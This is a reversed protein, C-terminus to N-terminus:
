VLGADHVCIAIQVRNTVELKTFLRGIHAKVTPLSLYLRAAIDANSLGAGVAVAVEHERETLRALRGKAVQVRDPTSRSTLRAILRTTVSPSLM